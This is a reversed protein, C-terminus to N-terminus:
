TEAQLKVLLLVARHTNKLNKFNDLRLLDHLHLNTSKIHLNQSYGHLAHTAM